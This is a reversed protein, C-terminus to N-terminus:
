GQAKKAMMFVISAVMLSAFWILVILGIVGGALSASLDLLQLSGTKDNTDRILQGALAHLEARTREEGPNFRLKLLDEAAQLYIAAADAIEPNAESIIESMNTTRSRAQSILSDIRDYVNKNEDHDSETSEAGPTGDGSLNLKQPEDGSSVASLMVPSGVRAVMAQSERERCVRLLIQALISLLFLIAINSSAEFM